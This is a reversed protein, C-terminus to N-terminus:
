SREDLIPSYRPGPQTIKEQGFKESLTWELDIRSWPISTCVPQAQDFLTQALVLQNRRNSYQMAPCSADVSNVSFSLFQFYAAEQDAEDRQWVIEAMTSRNLFAALDPHDDSFVFVLLDSVSPVNRIDIFRQFLTKRDHILLLFHGGSLKGFHQFLHCALVFDEPLRISRERL